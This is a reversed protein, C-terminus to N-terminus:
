LANSIETDTPIEEFRAQTTEITRSLSAQINHAGPRTPYREHFQRALERGLEDLNEAPEWTYQEPDNEYGDWEIRYEFRKRVRNYRSDVIEKIKYYGELNIPPPPPNTRGPISSKRVPELLSIHFVSHIRRFELPLKLRFATESLQEIVKFPGLMRESFKRIPRTTRINKTSLMVESGVTIAPQPLRHRDAFRKYTEQARTLALQIQRRILELDTVYQQGPKSPSIGDVIEFCPHYGYNAFFPTVGTSTHESQNYAIEAFPLWWAWDDQQYSCYIRLFGELTQNVRETQGDTQPHYATSLKRQIDLKSTFTKWFDSTFKSGRDSVIDNPLGHKVFVHRLFIDALEETRLTIVTPIFIAMKSFRDVIVLISNSGNSPPLEEIFDMSISSWPRDPVPLPELLGYPHHRRAKTRSCALCSGIYDAVVPSSKPWYFQRKLSALTKRLGPHGKTPHDHVMRLIELRIPNDIPVCPRNQYVLIGDERLSYREEEEESDGEFDESSPNNESDRIESRIKRLSLDARQATLLREVFSSQDEPPLESQELHNAALRTQKLLPKFNHPNNKAYAGEGGSPYLDDRRSLSDPKESQKGARYQIVFDYESLKEAWRAQRRTLQKSSMFYELAKHDSIVRVPLVASGLLSHWRQFAWVIALLEKDHIEYNIEAEVFKRSDFAVPRLIGDACNQSLIIGMAYDSADTELITDLNPDFHVLIPAETFAKKLTEFAETADETWRFESDKKTLATLPTVIKSYNRIFRRYFNAFGLFSQVAKVHTPVPWDLVTQVKKVDMSIGDSGVMYGLFEVKSQHFECKSAKAYLKHFRLLELVKEVHTEHEKESTSYVLIDDLYVVVFSDLHEHLVDNIYHQFASPANTLGFPMVLFEFSGYRCRFTTKWEHGAAIRLRHYAGRLDMKSFIKATSFQELLLKIPPLPYKNKKSRLNLQRYDICMRLTGEKKKVFLVPAGIPSKSPRIFGKSLLEDIETKLAKAEPASTGYIPGIPPLDKEDLLEITHDYPRHPPLDDARAKSFVDLFDHYRPPVIRLIDAIDDPSEDPDFFHSLEPSQSDNSTERFKSTRAERFKSPPLERFNRHEKRNKSIWHSVSNRPSSKNASDDSDVDGDYLDPAPWTYPEAFLERVYHARSDSEATVGEVIKPQVESQIDPQDWPGQPNFRIPFLLKGTDWDISPRAARLTNMGLVVEWPPGLQCVLFPVMLRISPALKITLLVGLTVNQASSGDFM